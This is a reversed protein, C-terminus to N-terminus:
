LLCMRGIPIPIVQHPLLPEPSDPSGLRTCELHDSLCFPLRNKPRLLMDVRPTTTALDIRPVCRMRDSPRLFVLCRDAVRVIASGRAPDAMLIRLPPPRLRYMEDVGADKLDARGSCSPSPEAVDM